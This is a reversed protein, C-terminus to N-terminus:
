TVTNTSNLNHQILKSSELFFNFVEDFTYNKFNIYNILKYFYDLFKRQEYNNM